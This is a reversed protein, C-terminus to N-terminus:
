EGTEPRTPRTLALSRQEPMLLAPLPKLENLRAAMALEEEGVGMRGLRAAGQGPDLHLITRILERNLRVSYRGEGAAALAGSLVELVSGSNWDRVLEVVELLRREAAMPYAPLESISRTGERVGQAHAEYAEGFAQRVGVYQEIAQQVVPLAVDPGLLRASRAWWGLSVEPQGLYQRLGELVPEAGRVGVRAMAAHFPTERPGTGTEPIGLALLGPGAEKAGALALLLLVPGRPVSADGLLARARELLEPHGWRGVALAFQPEAVFAGMSNGLAGVSEVDRAMALATAASLVAPSGPSEMLARRLYETGERRGYRHLIGAAGIRDSESALRPLITALHDVVAPAFPEARIRHIEMWAEEPTSTGMRGLFDGRADAAEMAALAGSVGEGGAGAPESRANGDGTDSGFRTWVAMVVLLVVFAGGLKWGMWSRRHARAKMVVLNAAAARIDFVCTGDATGM